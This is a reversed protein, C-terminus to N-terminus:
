RRMMWAPISRRRPKRFRPLTLTCATPSRRLHRLLGAFTIGPLSLSLSLLTTAPRTARQALWKAHRSPMSHMFNRYYYYFARPRNHNTRDLLEVSRVSVYLSSNMADGRYQDLDKLPPLDRGTSTLDLIITLKNGPPLWLTQM